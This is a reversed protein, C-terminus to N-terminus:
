RTVFEASQRTTGAAAPRHKRVRVKGRGPVVPSRARRGNGSTTDLQELIKPLGARPWICVTGVRCIPDIRLMRIAYEVRWVSVGSVRAIEGASLPRESELLQRQIQKLDVQESLRKTPVETTM